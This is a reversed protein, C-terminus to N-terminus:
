FEKVENFGKLEGVNEGVIVLTPRITVTIKSLKIAKQITYNENIKKLEENTIINKSEDIIYYGNYYLENIICQCNKPLINFEQMTMIFAEKSFVHSNNIKNMYLSIDAIDNKPYVKNGQDMETFVWNCFEETLRFKFKEFMKDQLMDYTVDDELLMYAHQSSCRMFPQYGVPIIKGQAQNDSATAWRMMEIETPMRYIIGYRSDGGMKSINIRSNEKEIESKTLPHWKGDDGYKCCAFFLATMLDSTIDMMPTHLGYHQALAVNNVSSENWYKIADFDDFFSCGENLILRNVIKSLKPNLNDNKKRFISPKSSGYYANEGRFYYKSRPQMIISVNYPFSSKFGDLYFDILHTIIIKMINENDQIKDNLLRLEKQSM